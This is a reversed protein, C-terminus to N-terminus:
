EGEVVEQIRQAQEEDWMRDLEVRSPIVSMVEEIATKCFLCIDRLDLITPVRAGQIYSLMTAYPIGTADCVRETSFSRKSRATRRWRIHEENLMWRIKAGLLQRAEAPVTTRRIVKTKAM